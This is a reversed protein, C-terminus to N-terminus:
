DESYRTGGFESLDREALQLQHVAGAREQGGLVLAM